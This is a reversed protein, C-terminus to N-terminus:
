EVHITETSIAVAQIYRVNACLKGIKSWRTWYLKINHTAHASRGTGPSPYAPPAWPAWGSSCWRPRGLCTAVFLKKYSSYWINRIRIWKMRIRIWATPQNRFSDVTRFGIGISFWPKKVPRSLSKVKKYSHMIETKQKMWKSNAKPPFMCCFMFYNMVNKWKKLRDRKRFIVAPRCTTVLSPLIDIKLWLISLQSTAM